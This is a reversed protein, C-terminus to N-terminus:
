GTQVVFTYLVINTPLLHQKTYICNCGRNICGLYTHVYTEMNM